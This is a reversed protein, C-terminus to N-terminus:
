ARDLNSEATGPATGSASSDEPVGTKSEGQPVTPFDFESFFPIAGYRGRLYGKEFSEDARVGRIDHLSYLDTAGSPAKETFWVQDRRLLTGSLLSSEHTAFLLQAGRANLNPDHFFRILERVLSPHMSASLEDIVAMQGEHLADYLHPLM